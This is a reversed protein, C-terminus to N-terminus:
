DKIDFERTASIGMKKPYIGNNDAVIEWGYDADTMNNYAGQPNEENGDWDEAPDAGNQLAQLDEKLQGKNYEYGTHLFTVDDKENFVALTLGGGNDEIVQYKLM